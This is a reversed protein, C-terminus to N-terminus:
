GGLTRIRDRARQNEPNLELSRRYSEIAAGADGTREYAEGLSDWVNWSEPHADANLRFAGIAADTDGRELLGYGLRNVVPEALARPGYASVLERYRTEGAEAGELLANALALSAHQRQAFADEPNMEVNLALVAEADTLSGASELEGGVDALPVAGFDYTSRGYYETRLGRYRAALSDLGGGDYAIRLEDQLTRPLRTGRHCTFCQVDVAPDARGELAPLREGNIAAVMRLMVRAKEKLEPDDSAFDYTSLPAGEEGVHCSSCRVGLARTFGAMTRMLVPFPIDDPFVQLNTLSDPPWQAAVPSPASISVALVAGLLLCAGPIRPRPASPTM